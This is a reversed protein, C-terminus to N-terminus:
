QRKCNEEAVTVLMNKFQSSDMDCKELEKILLRLVKVALGGEYPAFYFATGEGFLYQVQM